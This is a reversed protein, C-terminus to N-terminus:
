YFESTGHSAEGLMVVRRDALRDLLRDFAPDDLAPLDEAAEAIM